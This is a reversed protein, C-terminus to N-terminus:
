PKKLENLDMRHDQALNKREVGDLRSKLGDIASELNVTASELKTIARALDRNADWVSFIFVAGMAALILLQWTPFRVVVEGREEGISVESLPHDESM